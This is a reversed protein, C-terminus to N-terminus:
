KSPTLHFEMLIMSNKEYGCCFLPHSHFSHTQEHWTPMQPKRSSFCSIRPNGIFRLIKPQWNLSECGLIGNSIANFCYNM